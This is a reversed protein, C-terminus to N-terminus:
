LKLKSKVEEWLADCLEDRANESVDDDQIYDCEYFSFQGVTWDGYGLNFENSITLENGLFEIMDGISVPYHKFKEKDKLSIEDWQKKTIHQKM